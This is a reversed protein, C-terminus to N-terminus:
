PRAPRLCPAAGSTSAIAPSRRGPGRVRHVGSSTSRRTTRREATTRRRSSRGPRRLRRPTSGSPVSKSRGAATAPPTSRASMCGGAAATPLPRAPSARNRRRHRRVGAGNRSRHRLCVAYGAVGNADTAGSFGFEISADSSWTSVTHSSSSVLLGTPATTDVVYPGGATVAGLNGAGDVACVHAYWIGDALSGSSGALTATTTGLGSCAPPTATATFGYRYVAVGSLADSAAAWSIDVTPNSKPLGDGHSISSVVGTAGPSATDIWFPGAHVGATCNGALDCTRLHFYGDNGDALAPSTTSHPDATHPVDVMADPTSVASYNWEVSYGALGSGGLNDAAGSWTVQVTNDNTWAGASPSTSTSTPDSPPIEDLGFKQIRHNLHDAVYLHGTSFAVNLPDLFQGDGSGSSGWACLPFGELTFAQIRRNAVESVYVVGAPSITIGAPANLQGAGAGYSGWKGVFAGASTFRQVTHGNVDTVFVDGGPATAVGWARLFQGNGAGASGFQLVFNGDHDYKTVRNAADNVAYVHDSADVTLGYPSGAAWQDVLTGDLAFVQVNAAYLNSVVAHGHSDLAVSVPGGATSWQRVFNGLGDFLQLRGNDFDAVVVEGGPGAGVGFPRRFQGAGTGFSGWKREFPLACTTPLTTDTIQFPGASAVAGWNGANDRACVHFYWSGAALSSSTASTTGEEAEKTTECTWSAGATFAWSYGDLGSGGDVPEGWSMAISDAESAVSVAHTTSALGSVTGPATTDIWFPGAHVTATCNGALDCTRLHFYWDNGDALAPSTTSHPDATHPVDVVADPTSVSAHDWSISYGALGSGGPDDAAGSWTVQVTNDNSWSSAAPSTSDVAPDSPATSEAAVYKAVVYDQGLGDSTGAVVIAGNPGVAMATGYDHGGNDITGAWQQAGASDYRVTVTDQNSGNHSRGVVYISGLGDLAISYATDDQSGAAPNDFMQAWELTGSMDYKLTLYDYLGTGVSGSYGTAYLNGGADLAHSFTMDHHVGVAPNEFTRAWQQVGSSNYKVTLADGTSGDVQVYGTVYVNGATDASVAYGVDYNFPGAFPVAWQQVGASNYKVTLVDWGTVARLAQGTVYANGSADVHLAYPYEDNSGSGNYSSAWQQVGSANYKVTLYDYGTASVSQGTVYVDGGAGVAIASPTDHSNVSGNFPTAWQQAGAADYKVTMYDWNAGNFSQGTVYTNGDGDVAVAVAQDHQFGAAPNEFAAAWMQVGNPGYRVTMFDNFNSADNALGTVSVRGVSDVAVGGRAFQNTESAVKDTTAGSPPEIATWLQTGAPDYKVIRADWTSDYSRGGVLVNGSMDMGVASGIDDQSGVLPSDFARVWQVVGSGDYKATLYDYRTTVPDQSYGVVCVNGSPDSVIAIAYDLQTGAEPNESIAAWQQVGAPDYEVTVLDWGSSGSIGSGTVVVEGGAAVTVAYAEGVSVGGFPTSWQQVGASDYKVTMFQNNSGGVVYANGAVDLTLGYAWDEQTGPAPNDFPVAWLQSGAASWRVTMFDSVGSVADRSWGTVYPSGNGDVALGFLREDGHTAGDFTASWQLAGGPGYKVILFDNANSNREGAVFVSGASDVAIARGWEEPNGVGNHLVAWQQLGLSNVKATLLDTGGPNGSSYGTVFVNGFSDLALATPWDQQAGVSPSDVRTSWILAGDPGYKAVLFDWSSGDHVSDAVFTNGAQDVVLSQENRRHDTDGLYAEGDIGRNFRM